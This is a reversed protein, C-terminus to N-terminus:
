RNMGNHKLMVHYKIIISKIFVLTVTPQYPCGSAMKYGSGAKNPEIYSVQMMTIFM